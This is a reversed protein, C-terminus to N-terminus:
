RAAKSADCVLEGQVLTDGLRLRAHGDEGALTSSPPMAADRPNHFTLDIRGAAPSFREIVYDASRLTIRKGSALSTSSFVVIPADDGYGVFEVEYYHPAEDSSFVCATQSALASASGLASLTIARLLTSAGAAAASSRPSERRMSAADKDDCAVPIRPDV